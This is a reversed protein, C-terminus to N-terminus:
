LRVRGNQPQINIFELPPGGKQPQINIFELALGGKPDYPIYSRLLYKIFTNCIILHFIIFHLILLTPVFSTTKLPPGGETSPPCLLLFTLKILESFWWSMTCLYYLSLPVWRQFDDVWLVFIPPGGRFIMLKYYMFLPAWRQFHYLHWISITLYSQM